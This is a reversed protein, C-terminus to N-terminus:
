IQTGKVVKSSPSQTAIMQDVLTSTDATYNVTIKANSSTAARTFMSSYSTVNPNMINITTTLKSCYWFMHDMNTVNSTDFSSLDLSTLSSCDSFMCYMNTVKSTNFSSLDLNTLSSCYYFMWMMTTVKSTNFSSLDLNTLSSCAYFMNNMDTVNSTNFSSLDVSKLNSLAFMYKMNTVKSTDFNSLNLSTLSSCHYFMNNMDAVKSTNFNSLSLNTLSTCSSFMSQMNTVNSTNFSSLDLSTLSSCGDFMESMDTVKSTNFISLDLSTLSSCNYFMYLMNTVNSTNFSSLDLNALSSCDRFMSGMNTVNSTNFFNNFNIQTLNSVYEGNEYKYFSFIYECNAPAFIPAESVIYLNYLTKNVTTSTSSDTEDITLGSDILYGYVKKKQSTSDSIDWCLNEETCNSPLNSLDNGFTITRIYKKYTNNWFETGGNAGYSNSYGNKMMAVEMINGKVKVYVDDNISSSAKYYITVNSSTNSNINGNYINNEILNTCASDTYYKVLDNSTLEISYEANKAGGVTSIRVNFSGSTGTLHVKYSDNYVTGSDVNVKFVWDKANGSITGVITNKFASYTYNLTVFM